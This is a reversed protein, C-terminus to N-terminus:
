FNLNANKEKLDKASKNLKSIANKNKTVQESVTHKLKKSKKDLSGEKKLVPIVLSSTVSSHRIWGLLAYEGLM